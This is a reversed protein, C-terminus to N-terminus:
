RNGPGVEEASAPVTLTKALVPMSASLLWLKVANRRTLKERITM